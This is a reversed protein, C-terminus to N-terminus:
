GTRVQEFVSNWALEEAETLRKYNYVNQLEDPTPNVTKAVVRLQAATAKDGKAEAADADKSILDPVGKVPSFYGIYESLPVANAPDYWFNMMMHADVPHAAKNPIAMNDVWRMGGSQPVIFKVNPNDYLQMQTIDGSWAITIWLNKNALEDYYDNGYFNRFQGNKAAALLKNGAKQVDSVTADVPKVGISLLAMCM